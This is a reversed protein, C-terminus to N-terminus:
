LREAADLYDSTAKNRQEESLDEQLIKEAIDVGLEGLMRRLNDKARGLELEMDKKARAVIVDYEERGSQVIREKEREAIERAQERISYSERKADDFERRINELQQSSEEENKKAEDLSANIQEARKDLMRIIPKYLFRTLLWLLILFNIMQFIITMNLYVLAPIHTASASTLLIGM